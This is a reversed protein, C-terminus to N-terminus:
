RNYPKYTGMAIAKIESRSIGMDNLERDSLQSLERYAQRDMKPTIADRFNRYLGAVAECFACYTATLTSMVGM